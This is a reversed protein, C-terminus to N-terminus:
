ANIELVVQINVFQILLLFLDLRLAILPQFILQVHYLHTINRASVLNGVTGLLLPTVNLAM